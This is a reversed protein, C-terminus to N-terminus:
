LPHLGGPLLALPYLNRHWGLFHKGPDGEPSAQRARPQSFTGAAQVTCVSAM